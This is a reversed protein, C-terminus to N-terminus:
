YQHMMQMKVEFIGTERNAKKHHVTLKKCIMDSFELIDVELFAKNSLNQYLRHIIAILPVGSITAQFTVWRGAPSETLHAKLVAYFPKKPFWQQNQKIIWSSHVGFKKMVEVATATTGFWSDGGVWGSKPISAGEVLRLVEVTYATIDSGDPLTSQTAYYSKLAQQEPNQVVDQVAM